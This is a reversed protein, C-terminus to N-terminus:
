NESILFRIWFLLMQMLIVAMLLKIPIDMVWSDNLFIENAALNAASVAINYAVTRAHYDVMNQVSRTAVNNANYGLVLFLTSFGLVLIFALKGM